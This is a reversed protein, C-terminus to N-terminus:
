RPLLTRWSRGQRNVDLARGIFAVPISGKLRGETFGLLLALIIIILLVLWLDM